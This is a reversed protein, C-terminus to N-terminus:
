RYATFGFDYPVGGFNETVFCQIISLMLNTETDPMSAYSDASTFTWNYRQDRTMDSMMVSTNAEVQLGTGYPSTYFYDLRARGSLSAPIIMTFRVHGEDRAFQYTDNSAKYTIVVDDGYAYRNGAKRMFERLLTVGKKVSIRCSDQIAPKGKSKLQVRIVATGPKGTTINGYQDVLAVKKNSSSWTIKYEETINSTAPSITYTMEKKKGPLLTAKKLTLRIKTAFVQKKVTVKCHYRNGDHTATITASGKKKPTIVGKASVAAVKPNSSKWTVTHTANYLTLKEKHGVILTLSTHSLSVSNVPESNDDHNDDTNISTNSGLSGSGHCYICTSYGSGHCLYCSGPVSGFAAGSGHCNTCTVQGDGGCWVCTLAHATEKENYVGTFLVAAFLVSVLLRKMLNNKEPQYM